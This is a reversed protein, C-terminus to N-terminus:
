FVGNEEPTKNLDLTLMPANNVISVVEEFSDDKMVDEEQTSDQVVEGTEEPTKRTNEQSLGKSYCKSM